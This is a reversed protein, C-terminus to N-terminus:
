LAISEGAAAAVATAASAVVRCQNRHRTLAQELAALWRGELPEKKQGEQSPENPPSLVSLPLRALVAWLSAQLETHLPQTESLGILTHALEYGRGEPVDEDELLGALAM